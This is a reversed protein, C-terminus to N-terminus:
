MQRQTTDLINEQNLHGCFWKMFASVSGCEFMWDYDDAKLKGVNPYRLKKLTEIFNVGNM